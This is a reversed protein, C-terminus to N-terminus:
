MTLSNKSVRTTGSAYMIGYTSQPTTIQGSNRLVTKLTNVYASKGSALEGIVILNIADCPPDIEGIKGLLQNKTKSAFFLCPFNANFCFSHYWGKLHGNDRMSVVFSQRTWLLFICTSSIYHQYYM